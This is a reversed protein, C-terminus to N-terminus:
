PPFLENGTKSEPRLLRIVVLSGTIINFDLM